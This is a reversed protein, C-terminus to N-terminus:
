SILESVFFSKLSILEPLVHVLGFAKPESCVLPPRYLRVLDYSDGSETRGFGPLVASFRYGDRRLVLALHKSARWNLPVDVFEAGEIGHVSKSKMFVSKPLRHQDMKDWPPEFYHRDLILSAAARDLGTMYLRRTGFGTGGNLDKVMLVLSLPQEGHYEPRIWPHVFPLIGYPRFGFNLLNRQSACDEYCAVVESVLTKVGRERLQRIREVTFAKAIGLKRCDSCVVLGCLEWAHEYHGYPVARAFGVIEGSFEAVVNVHNIDLITIQYPYGTGYEDRFLRNIGSVDEQVAGRIIPELGQYKMSQQQIM